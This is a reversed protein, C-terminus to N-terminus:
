LACLDGAERVVRGWERRDDGGISVVSMKWGGKVQDGKLGEEM